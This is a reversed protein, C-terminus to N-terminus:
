GHAAKTSLKSRAARWAPYVLWAVLLLSLAAAGAAGSVVNSETVKFFVVTVDAAIGIALSCCATVVLRSGIRFFRADDKGEFAIRHLAAPTMLLMM